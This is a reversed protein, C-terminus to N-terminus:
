AGAAPLIRCHPEMHPALTLEAVYHFTGHWAGLLRLRRLGVWRRRPEVSFLRYGLGIGLSGASTDRLVYGDIRAWTM